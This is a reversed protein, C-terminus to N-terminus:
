SEYHRADLVGNLTSDSDASSDSVRFQELLKETSKVVLSSDSKSDHGHDSAGLELM